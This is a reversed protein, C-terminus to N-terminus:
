VRGQFARSLKSIFQLPNQLFTDVIEPTQKVKETLSYGIKLWDVEIISKVTYKIAQRRLEEGVIDLTTQDPMYTKTLGDLIVNTRGFTTLYLPFQINHKVLIKAFELFWFGFGQGDTKELYAELDPQIISKYKMHDIEAMETAIKVTRKIDKMYVAIILNRCMEAEKRNLESVLGCDINAADGHPLALINSLHPDAQFLYTSIDDRFWNRIAANIYTKISKEIDYKPNALIERKRSMPTGDVFDMVIINKTCLSNIPAIFIGKGLDSRFGREDGFSYQKKIRQMNHAELEFDLDQLIWSEFFKVLETIQITKLTRSLISTVRALKKMIRIDQLFYQDVFPRKIKVAVVTGDFLEAKHVQSVSASGLPQEYFKRFINDHPKGYEEELILFIDDLAIPNVRDLLKQLSQCSEESLLDYRMSLIQGIKIFTVGLEQCALKLREGFNKKRHSTLKYFVLYKSLVSCIKLSRM